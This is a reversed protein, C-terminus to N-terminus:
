GKYRVLIDWIHQRLEKQPDSKGVFGNTLYSFILRNGADTTILGSCTSVGSMSGGKAQVREKGAVKYTPLSALFTSAFKHQSMYQLLRTSSDASILNYRSLGSGDNLRFSDEELGAEQVLWDSIAKAGDQWTPRQIGNAIAIEHLLLEGIANESEVEFHRLIDSLKNGPFTMTVPDTNRLIKTATSPGIEVSLEKLMQEFVSAIWLTPDHMTLQHQSPQTVSSAGRVTILEDFPSRKVVLSPKGQSDSKGQELKLPPWDSSPTLRVNPKSAQPMGVRVTLVNFDIMLPSISMNFYYPEDDWMWGPGKLPSGYRSNDVRIAGRVSKLETKAVVAATMKRLDASSVMPDGGGILVLDGHLVGAHVPGELRITTEFRHDPGFRDLACAGTYIKLNSAPTMLQDGRRDYLVRGSERDVVKLCISSRRDAAHDEITDDLLRSLQPRDLSQGTAISHLVLWVVSAIMPIRRRISRDINTM